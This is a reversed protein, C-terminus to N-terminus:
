LLLGSRKAIKLKETSLLIREWPVGTMAECAIWLAGDPIRLTEIGFWPYTLALLHPRPLGGPGPEVTMQITLGQVNVLACREGPNRRGVFQLGNTFVCWWESVDFDQM